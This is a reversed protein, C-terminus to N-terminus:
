RGSRRAPARRAGPSRAAARPATGPASRGAGRGVARVGRLDGLPDLSAISATSLRSWSRIRRMNRPPSGPSAACSSSGSPGSALRGLWRDNLSSGEAAGSAAAAAGATRSRRRSAACRPRAGARRRPPARRADAPRVPALVEAGLHEAQHLRLHHLVRHDHRDPRLAAEHHLAGGACGRPRQGLLDHGAVLGEDAAQEVQGVVDCPPSITGGGPRPASRRRRGRGPPRRRCPCRSTRPCRWRRDRM